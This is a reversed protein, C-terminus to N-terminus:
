GACIVPHGSFAAVVEAWHKRGDTVVSLPHQPRDFRADDRVEGNPYRRRPLLRWPLLQGGHQRGQFQRLTRCQDGGACLRLSFNLPPARSDHAISAPRFARGTIPTQILARM